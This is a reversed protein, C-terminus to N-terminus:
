AYCYSLAPVPYLRVAACGCAASNILSWELHLHARYCCGEVLGPSMRAKVMASLCWMATRVLPWPKGVCSSRVKVLEREDRQLGDRIVHTGRRM